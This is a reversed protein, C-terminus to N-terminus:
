NTRRIRDIKVRVCHRWDNGTELSRRKKKKQCFNTMMEKVANLPASLDCIESCWQQCCGYAVPWLANTFVPLAIANVM